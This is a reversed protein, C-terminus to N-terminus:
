GILKLAKEKGKVSLARKPAAKLSLEFQSLADGPRKNELLWEGYLEFSPKVITPPGYSYSIASEIAVAQKLYNETAVADNKLRAQMAKLELEMVEAQKVDLTTPIESNINGCIGTSAEAREKDVLRQATMKYIISDLLIGDNRYFAQMGSVFNDAARTVINM